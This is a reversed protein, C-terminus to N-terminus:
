LNPLGFKLLIRLTGYILKLEKGAKSFLFAMMGSIFM